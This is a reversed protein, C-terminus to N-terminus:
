ERSKQGLVSCRGDGALDRDFFHIAPISWILEQNEREGLPGFQTVFRDRQWCDPDRFLFSLTVDVFPAPFILGHQSDVVAYHM